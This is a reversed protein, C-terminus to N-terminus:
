YIRVYLRSVRFWAHVMSDTDLGDKCGDCVKLM